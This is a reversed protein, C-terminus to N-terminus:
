SMGPADDVYEVQRSTTVTRSTVAFSVDTGYPVVTVRVARRRTAVSVSYPRSLPFGTEFRITRSWLRGGPPEVQVVTAVIVADVGVPEYTVGTLSRADASNRATYVAGLVSPRRLSVLGVTLTVTPAQV